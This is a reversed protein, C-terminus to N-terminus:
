PLFGFPINRYVCKYLGGECERRELEAASPVHSTQLQVITGTSTFSEGGRILSLVVLLVFILAFVALYGRM